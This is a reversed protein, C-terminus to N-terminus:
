NHQVEIKNRLKQVVDMASSIGSEHFGAFDPGARKISFYTGSFYINGEDNITYLEDQAKYVEIDIIPHEMTFSRIIKSEDIPLPSDISVFYDQKADLGQIENMYYVLFPYHTGDLTVKGYNWGAWSSRAEPLVRKDNHLIVESKNYKVLSLVRKQKETPEKLLRLAQDAHTALLVEDYWETKGSHEVAVKNGKSYIATVATNIRVPKDLLAEIKKIYQKSGGNVTEWSVSKEGGLGQHGHNMFFGILTSAPMMGIKDAPLSWCASCLQVVFSNIFQASYSHKEFYEELPIYANGEYFHKPSESFFRKAESWVEIFEEPYRRRIEEDSLGIEDSGYNVGTDFDFFNYRGEHYNTEVGLQDFMKSLFYYNQRNFVMFATDIGFDNFGDNVAITNTHGGVYDDKEYVDIDYLERLYYAASIGSIGSGIIALKKAM